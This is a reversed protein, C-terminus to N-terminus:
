LGLKYKLLFNLNKKAKGQYHINLLKLYEKNKKDFIYKTKNKNYILSFVRKEMLLKQSM